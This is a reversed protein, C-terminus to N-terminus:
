CCSTAIEFYIMKNEKANNTILKSHNTAFSYTLSANFYKSNFATKLGAGALRGSAGEDVYKNKVYGYDYFPELSFKHLHALNKDFFNRNKEDPNKDFPALFSGFNFNLKNRFYYGSDGNIYNERFGRVSYYGGVSFQESGFLTQRAYQANMESTFILPSNIKSFIFKKSFNAYLKFADFQARPETKLSDSDDKKANMIKLGRAYSPNLYISTTNDLYSSASLGLNLISLKRASTVIKEKNLYSASDKNSVAINTAIRLKADNIVIRDLTIKSIQSFGTLSLPEVIGQNQGKFESRSFDYSFNYQKFPISFGGAFSKMDKIKNKDHLNTSYNLNFNDNLFLLNDFSSSFNTRQIGTFNNGLNDKSITFKAPFKKNNEIMILSEGVKTGPAIKMLAQNSQLRNIQYIGQNIDNINLVDGEADGFAMFKQMKEIRRDAGFIIKEIKGEIIQLEFIGSQLNQKPVKIQTTVYGANQYYDNVSKMIKSLTEAEVCNGVFPKLIQKKQFNSLKTAGSFNIAKIVVCKSMEGSIMPQNEIAEKQNKKNLEREKKISDFELNRKKEELINQQQRIIWDQQNIDDQLSQAFSKVYFINSLFVLLFLIKLKILM